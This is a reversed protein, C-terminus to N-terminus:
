SVSKGATLQLKQVKSLVQQPGLVARDPTTTALHPSVRHLGLPDTM